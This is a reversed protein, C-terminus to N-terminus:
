YRIIYNGPTLLEDIFVIGTYYLDITTVASEKITKWAREMDKSWYIDGIVIFGKKIAVSIENYYKLTAQYNHNGDIFALCPSDLKKVINPLVPDFNQSIFRVNQLGLEEVNRKAIETLSLNGEVTYVIGQNDLGSALYMTSIGVSTGLELVVKFQYFRSMNYLLIGTKSEIATYKVIDGIKRQNGRLITSGAGFERFPILEKRQKLQHTIEEIQKIKDDPFAKYMVRNVFEFVAPSHIGRGKRHRARILYKLYKLLANLKDPNYVM